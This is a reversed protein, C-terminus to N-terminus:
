QYTFVPKNEAVQNNTRVVVPGTTENPAIFKLASPSAEIVTAPTEHITVNNASPTANFNAGTITVTIGVTGSDPKISYVVPATASVKIWNLKDECSVLLLAILMIKRAM